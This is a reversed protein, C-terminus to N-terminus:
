QGASDIAASLREPTIPIETIAVGVAASVANAVAPGPGLIPHEGIGKAGFPGLADPVEVLAVQVRPMDLITPIRYDVLNPNLIRGEAVLMEEWLSGGLGQAVGGEIQGELAMPNIAKGIDHCATYDLVTVQGTDPDVEVEAVHTGFGFTAYIGEGFGGGVPKDHHRYACWSGVGILPGGFGYISAGAVEKVTMSQEPSSENYARGDAVVIEGADLGLAQAACESIKARLDEAALRVASGNDFVTRSAISGLDYATSDSDPAGVSVQDLPVGLVEAAIQSLVTHTGTGIEVAATTIAITGDENLHVNASSSLLGVTKVVNAIGIGRNPGMSDKKEWYGSRALAMEMTERIHVDHLKVASILEDGDAVLNALRLEAPDIGLERALADIHTELAFIAQITGYGRMCGYDPNNTYVARTRVKWSPFRYVGESSSLAHSATGIVHDSYAGADAVIDVEGATLKGESTAGLKVRITFPARANAAIFEEERSMALRVSQGTKLALLAALPELNTKLKGGFGGGCELPIIRVEGMPLGLATALEAHCVSLQQTATWVTLRGRHDFGAVCAHPEIPAQNIAGTRYVAELVVASEAFSEAVDGRALKAEMCVNGYRVYPFVAEYDAVDPHLQPADDALAADTDLLPDRDEYTVTILGLAEEAIRESVAAVAAVRDGIYRVEGKALITKDKVLHGYRLDPADEGTVVAKVGPLALARSIDIDVIRAYPRDSFLIKAHLMGQLYFDTSYKSAGTVKAISDIRTVSKGVVEYDPKTKAKVGAGAVQAGAAIADM